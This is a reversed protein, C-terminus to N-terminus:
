RNKVENINIVIESFQIKDQGPRILERAKNMESEGTM